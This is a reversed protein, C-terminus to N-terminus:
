AARVVAPDEAAGTRCVARVGGFKLAPAPEEGCAAWRVEAAAGRLAAELQRALHERSLRDEQESFSLEVTIAAMSRWLLSLEAALAGNDRPDLLLLGGCRRWPTEASMGDALAAGSRLV